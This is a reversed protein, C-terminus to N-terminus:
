MKSQAKTLLRTEDGTVISSGFPGRGDKIKNWSNVAVGCAMHDDTLNHLVCLICLKRIKLHDRMFARSVPIIIGLPVEIHQYNVYRGTEFMDTKQVAAITRETM